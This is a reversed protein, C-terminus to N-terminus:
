GESCNLLQVFEVRVFGGIERESGLDDVFGREGSEIICIMGVSAELVLNLHCFFKKGGELSHILGM